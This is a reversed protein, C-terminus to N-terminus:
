PSSRGSNGLAALERWTAIITGKCATTKACATPPDLFRVARSAVPEKTRRWRSTGMNLSAENASLLRSKLTEHKQIRRCSGFQSELRRHELCSDTLHMDAIM